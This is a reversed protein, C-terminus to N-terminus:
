PRKSSKPVQPGRKAAPKAQGIGRQPDSMKLKNIKSHGPDQTKM